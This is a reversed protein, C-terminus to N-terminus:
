EVSGNKELFIIKDAYINLNLRHSIMIVTKTKRINDILEM